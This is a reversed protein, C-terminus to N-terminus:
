TQITLECCPSLLLVKIQLRETKYPNSLDGNIDLLSGVFTKCQHNGTQFEKAKVHLCSKRTVLSYYIIYKHPLCWSIQRGLGSPQPHLQTILILVPFYFEQKRRHRGRGYIKQIVETGCTLPLVTFIKATNVPWKVRWAWNIWVYLPDLSYKCPDQVIQWYSHPELFFHM